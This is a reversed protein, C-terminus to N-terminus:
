NSRANEVYRQEALLLPNLANSFIHPWARNRMSCRSAAITATALLIATALVTRPSRFAQMFPMARARRHLSPSRLDTIMRYHVSRLAGQSLAGPAVAGIGTSFSFGPLVVQTPGAVGNIVVHYYLLLGPLAPIAISYGNANTLSESAFSFPTAQNVTAGAVRCNEARTTCYFKTAGDSGYEDYGFEVYVNNGLGSAIIPVFQAATVYTDDPFPPLKAMMIGTHYGSIHFGTFLLYSADPTPLVKSYVYQQEPGMLLSSLWRQRINPSTVTGAVYLQTAQMGQTPGQFACPVNKNMQSQWCPSLNDIVPASIYLQRTTSGIRCEGNNYVWCFKWPTADTIQNGTAASSIDILYRRGIWVNLPQHKVDVTGTQTMLYVGTTGGQLTLNTAGGLIQGPYELDGGSTPDYHRFDFAYQKQQATASFQKVDVYSQTGYDNQYGAFKPGQPIAFDYPKDILNWPRNFQTTYVLSFDPLQGGAGIMTIAQNGTETLDFHGRTINQNFVYGNNGNIDVLILSAVCADRSITFYGWGNAHQMQGTSDTGDKPPTATSNGFACYSFNANRQMTWQYTNGSVLTPTTVVMFGEWDGTFASDKMMDGVQLGGTRAPDAAPTTIYGFASNYPCPQATSEATGAFANCPLTGRVQVCQNGTAGHATIWAPLGGPCTVDYVAPDIPWPLSTNANFSGSKSVATITGTYPGGELTSNNATLNDNAIQFSPGNAATSGDTPVIAHCGAYRLIGPQGTLSSGDDTRWSRYWLGTSATFAHVWCASNQSGSGQNLIMYPGALGAVQVNNASGWLAENYTTNALIQSRIDLGGGFPTLNTWTLEATGGPDNTTSAYPHNYALWTGTYHVLFIGTHGDATLLPVYMKTSDAPDFQPTQPGLLTIAGNPCPGTAYAANTCGNNRFPSIFRIVPSGPGSVGTFYLGGHVQRVSPFICPYGTIGDSSTVSATACGGTWLNQPYGKAIKFRFSVNISGTATTKNVIVSLASAEWDTLGVSAPNEVLTLHTADQVSAITCLNNTCPTPTATSSGNIYIKTGVVWDEDFYAKVDYFSSGLNTWGGSIPIYAQTSTLVSSAITGKGSHPWASRPLAKGWGTFYASPYSSPITGAAADSGTPLVITVQNTYCVTPALSLCATLTRNTASADTGSGWMDVGLDNLNDYPWYGGVDEFGDAYFGAVRGVIVSLPNTNATTATATGYASLNSLNTWGTGNAYNNASLALIQSSSWANPDGAYIKMGTRPEIVPKTFDTFQPFALQGFQASDTPLPEPVIGGPVGTTFTTNSTLGNCTVAVYHLTNAALARSHSFGDLAVVAKRLGIRLTRTTNAGSVTSSVLHAAETNANTFLVPDVDAVLPSLGVAESVQITCAPSTPATFTILAQTASVSITGITPQACLPLAALLPLLITKM